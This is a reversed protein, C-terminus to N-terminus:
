RMRYDVLRVYSEFVTEKFSGNTKYFCFAATSWRSVRSVGM